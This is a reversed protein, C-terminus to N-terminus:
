KTINNFSKWKVYIRDKWGGQLGMLIITKERKDRGQVRDVYLPWEMCCAAAQMIYEVHELFSTHGMQRIGNRYYM